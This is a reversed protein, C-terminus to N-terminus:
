PSGNVVGLGRARDLWIRALARDVPVGLGYYYCRGVEYLSQADGRLAAEVYLRAARRQNEPVGEGQEYCVALDFLADPLGSRAAERLLAIAKRLNKRVSRGYLYWTALAYTARADGYEHAELLMPRISDFDANPAQAAILAEEYRGIRSGRTM